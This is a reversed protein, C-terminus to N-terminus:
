FIMTYCSLQTKFEQFNTHALLMLLIKCKAGRVGLESYLNEKSKEM